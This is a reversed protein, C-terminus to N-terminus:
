KRQWGKEKYKQQTSYYGRIHWGTMENIDEKKCGIFTVRTAM